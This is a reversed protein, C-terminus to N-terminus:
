RCEDVLRWALADDVGLETGSLALYFARWRGTRRPISVTGGAGPILGMGVEPLRFTTGPAAVVRGAFAPLEIGAGVCPGHVRAEVREAVHLLPLAAGGHTRVLHATALDPAHGFEALDGGACFCPGAGRLVIRATPSALAATELADVLGDRVQRGYANRREPRNLTVTLVDGDRELLVPDAVMPPLPREGRATLWRRFEPGGLLTSYALSEADLADPAPLTASWRLLRKLVLAARPHQAAATALADAAAAPDPVRVTERRGDPDAVLTVDLSALVEAPVHPGGIGILLRPTHRAAACVATVDPVAGGLDLVVAPDVPSGDGDLVPGAAAGAVLGRLDTDLMPRGYRRGTPDHTTDATRLASSLHSCM